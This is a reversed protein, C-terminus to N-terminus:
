TLLEQVRAEMDDETNYREVDHPMDGAVPMIEWFYDPRFPALANPYSYVASVEGKASKYIRAQAVIPPSTVPYGGVYWLCGSGDGNEETKGEGALYGQGWHKYYEWSIADTLWRQKLGPFSQDNM